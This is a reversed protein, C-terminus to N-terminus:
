IKLTRYTDINGTNQNQNTEIIGTKWSQNKAVLKGLSSVDFTRNLFSFFSLNCIFLKRVQFYQLINIFRVKPPHAVKTM